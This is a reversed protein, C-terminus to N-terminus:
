NLPIIFRGEGACLKFTYEGSRPLDVVMKRGLRYMLLAKTNKFKLTVTDTKNESPESYNMLMFANSKNEKHKLITLYTDESVSEISVREHETLPNVLTSFNQTKFLDSKSKYMVDQYEYPYIADQFSKIEANVAKVCDYIWSLKGSKLNLIGFNGDAESNTSTGYQYYTIYKSGFSLNSYLQFRFDAVSTIDRMGTFDGGTQIYTRLELNNEICKTAAKQLNYLHLGKIYNNKLDGMLPYFDYSLYGVKRGIEQIYKDIYGDWGTPGLSGGGANAPYLNIYTDGKTNLEAMRNDFADVVKGISKLEDYFPEDFMYSGAYAPHNIYQCEDPFVRKMAYGYPDDSVMPQIDSGPLIDEPRLENIGLKYINSDSPVNKSMGYLNWDRVYYKLGYKQCFDLAVKADLEAGEYRLRLSEDLTTGKGCHGDYLALVHTFGADALEKFHEETASNYSCARRTPGSYAVLTLGPSKEFTPVTYNSCGATTSVVLLAPILLSIRNKM